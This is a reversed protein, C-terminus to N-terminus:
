KRNARRKKLMRIDPGSLKCVQYNNTIRSFIRESYTDCLEELFLNTSIITSKKRLHRENICSFLQSSIFKNSMETGLDDIILLDCTYIDNYIGKLEEKSKYDFAYKGLTEFMQSSSFYIVSYGKDIMEKAICSSLFSKGTGVTGYFYLNQYDKHFKNIFNKSSSVAKEFRALDEGTYFELSLTSFNDENLTEQINSQAYLMSIMAQKFCHCKGLETYGSDLCNPCNYIPLLYEASYGNSTLLVTKRSAFDKIMEKLQSLALTDGALMKKGQAVSTSSIMAELKKYEPIKEYIEQFRSDLLHHNHLQREEYIRLITDYQSNTLAM